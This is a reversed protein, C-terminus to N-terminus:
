AVETRIQTEDFKQIGPVKTSTELFESISSFEDQYNSINKEELLDSTTELVFNTFDIM